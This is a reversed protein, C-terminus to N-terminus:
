EQRSRGVPVEPRCPQMPRPLKMEPMPGDLATGIHHQRERAHRQGIRRQVASVPLSRVDARISPLTKHVNTASRDRFERHDDACPITAFSQPQSQTRQERGVGFRKLLKLNQHDVIRTGVVGSAHDLLDLVFTDTICELWSCAKGVRSVQSYLQGAGVPYQKEVVINLNRPVEEGFVEIFNLIVGAVSEEASWDDRTEITRVPFPRM